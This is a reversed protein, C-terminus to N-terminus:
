VRLRPLSGTLWDRHLPLQLTASTEGTLPLCVEFRTGIRGDARDTIRITGRHLAVQQAVLTLGLGTGPSDAGRRFRQFVQERANPPIGPGHDDVTLLAGGPGAALTVEVTTVGTRPSRGHVLANTLLNDAVMRLGPEWGSTRLGGAAVVTIRDRPHRRAADAASAELLEGLDVPTFSDAEVLDGQALARLTVLLGQLRAHEARLDAVVEAREGADLDPHGALIELNTQMSMLPTRLEHSAAASFSRATELAEGTRAAQEDYRALITQLTNALDDVETVRSVTHELRASSVRPDLGGARRQLRRLPLTAREAIALALLASVPAAFLAILLIRRRVAGAGDADVASKPSFVWVTDGAQGGQVPLALARWSDGGAAVTVPNRARAVAPLPVTDSPQPGGEAVVSGGTGSVVRVGVDLAVSFLRHERNQEVGERGTREGRLVTRALPMVVAARAQLHADVESRADKTVLRLLLAGSALVLLPVTIGVAIAIRTSLRM